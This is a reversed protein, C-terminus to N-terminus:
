YGKVYPMTPLYYVLIVAAIFLTLMLFFLVIQIDPREILKRM